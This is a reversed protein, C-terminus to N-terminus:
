TAQNEKLISDSTGQKELILLSSAKELTLRLVSPFRLLPSYQSPPGITPVTDGVCWESTTGAGQGLRM